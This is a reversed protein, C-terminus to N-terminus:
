PRAARKPTPGGNTSPAPAVATGNQASGHSSEYRYSYGYGYGSEAKVGNLVAGIVPGDVQRVKAIAAAAEKRTTTDASFVMLTADVHRFLVLADTVPLVPPTDILVIDADAALAAFVDATRKSSLLESPNPPLPGSALLRLRPVGPVNQLAASVPREGLLTSTFGVTNDLGFFDHIRPRRLDCCVIVVRKGATALTIGLNALTTTKGEGQGPSTVQLTRMPHDLAIFDIATRLARYAEAPVSRPAELAVLRSREKTKWGPIEPILGIVPITGTVQQLAEQTPISDDLYEALFALGVGLLCGVVLALIANRIPTPKIPSGPVKASRVIEAGGTILNSNIQQRNLNDQFLAQQQVLSERQAQLSESGAGPTSGIQRDLAAIQDQLDQIKSQVERQAVVSEDIGQQRRHEIYAAAYANAVKAAQQRDTSEAVVLVVATTGVQRVSVPPASKLERRVIDQVSEGQLVEIETPIFLASGNAQGSTTDFVSIGARPEIRLKASAAYVPTQLFSLAVAAGVVLAVTIVVIARRRRLVLLYDRLELEGDIEDAPVTM